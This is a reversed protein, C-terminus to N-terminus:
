QLVGGGQLDTANLVGIPGLLQLYLDVDIAEVVFARDGRVAGEDGGWLDGVCDALGTKLHPFSGIRRPCIRACRTATKRRRRALRPKQQLWPAATMFVGWQMPTHFGDSCAAILNTLSLRRPSLMM